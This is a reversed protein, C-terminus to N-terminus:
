FYIKYYTNSGCFANTEKIEQLHYITLLNPLPKMIREKM